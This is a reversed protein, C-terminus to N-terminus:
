ASQKDKGINAQQYKGINVQQEAQSIQEAVNVQEAQKVVVNVPPRKMDRIAKIINLLHTDAAQRVRQIGKLAELSNKSHGSPARTYAILKDQYAGAVLDGLMADIAEDQLDKSKSRLALKVAEFKLRLTESEKKGIEDSGSICTPLIGIGNIHWRKIEVVRGDVNKTTGLLEEGKDIEAIQAELAAQRKALEKGTKATKKKAVKSRAPKNKAM